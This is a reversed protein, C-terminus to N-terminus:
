FQNNNDNNNWMLTQHCPTSFSKPIRQNVANFSNNYQLNSSSEASFDSMQQGNAYFNPYTNFQDMPQIPQMFYNQPLSCTFDPQNPDTNIFFQPRQETPNNSLLSEYSSQPPTQVTHPPSQFPNTMITNTNNLTSQAM